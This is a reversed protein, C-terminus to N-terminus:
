IYENSGRREYKLLEVIKTGVAFSSLVSVTTKNSIPDTPMYRLFYACQNIGVCKILEIAQTSSSYIRNLDLVIDFNLNSSVGEKISFESDSLIMIRNQIERLAKNPEVSIVEFGVISLLNSFYGINSNIDLVVSKSELLSEKSLDDILVEYVDRLLKENNNDFSYLYPNLISGNLDSDTILNVEEAILRSCELNAWKSYDTKSISCPINKMGKSILFSIRHTGDMALFRGGEIYKVPAPNNMFFRSNTNFEKEMKEFVKYRGDIIRKKYEYTISDNSINNKGVFFSQRVYENIDNETESSKISRGFAKFLRYRINNYYINVPKSSDSEKFFLLESPIMCLQFEESIDNIFFSDELGRDFDFNSIEPIQSTDFDDGSNMSDFIENNKVFISDQGLFSLDKFLIHKFGFEVAQKAVEKHSFFDLLSIVLVTSEFNLNEPYNNLIEIGDDREKMNSSNKDIFYKVSLKKDTLLKCIRDGNHGAGYIIFNSKDNLKRM